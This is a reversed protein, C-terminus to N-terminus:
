LIKMGTAITQLVVRAAVPDVNARCAKAINLQEWREAGILKIALARNEEGDQGVLMHCGRCLYASNDLLWRCQKYRRSVLHHADHGLRLFCRQCLGSRSRVILSWLKDAEKVHDRFRELGAPMRRRRSRSRKTPKPQALM